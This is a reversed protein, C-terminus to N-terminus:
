YIYKFSNAPAWRFSKIGVGIYNMESVYVQQYDSSIREVLAVHGYYGASTTAIAGVAPITGTSWGSARAAYYWNDANGWSNPVRRRGAVYWTCQGRDYDNAYTYDPAMAIPPLMQGTSDNSLITAVHVASALEATAPTTSLTAAPPTAVSAVTAHNVSLPRHVIYSFTANAGTWLLLAVATRAIIHPNQRRVEIVSTRFGAWRQQTRRIRPRALYSSMAPRQFIPRFLTPNM